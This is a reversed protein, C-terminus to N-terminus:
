ITIYDKIQDYISNGIGEVEKLEETNTFNGNKDRYNIINKAKSEGIGPLTKLEDITATNINIKGNLTTDSSTTDQKICAGNIVEGDICIELKIKEKQKTEIFDIVEQKSYIIIVMEDTIKKSLNIVSTDANEKLGGAMKIVDIVRTNKDVKYIGPSKIEGKIDVVLNNTNSDEKKEREKETKEKKIGNLNENIEISEKEQKKYYIIGYISSIAIALVVISILVIKRISIYDRM